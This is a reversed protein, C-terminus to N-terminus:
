CDDVCFNISRSPGDYSRIELKNKGYPASMPSDYICQKEGGLDWNGLDFEQKTDFSYVTVRAQTNFNSWFCLDVRSGYDICKNRCIQGKYIAGFVEPVPTPIPQRARATATAGAIATATRRVIATATQRIVATTTTRAAATSTQRISITATARAVVTATQLDIATATTRATATSTQQANATATARANTTETQQVAATVTQVVATNIQHASATAAAGAIARETVKAIAAATEVVATGTQQAFGTAAAQIVATATQQAAATATTWAIATGTQQAVFLATGELGAMATATQEVSMTATSQAQANATSTQQAYAMATTEAIVMGTQQASITAMAQAQVMATGTQQAVATATKEARSTVMRDATYWLGIVTLALVVLLILWLKGRGTQKRALLRGFEAATPRQSVDRETAQSLANALHRPLRNLKPFLFPHTRPDDDTVLHYLTAALAYVDTRPEVRGHYQEPPAYGATGFVSTQQMGVQGTTQMARQSKATGFDVLWIDGTRDLILNAPKIDLHVVNKQALYELVKCVQIGWREVEEAGYPQGKIEKRDEDEHTLGQELNKGEIYDMVIYNRGGETFFNFIQPIPIGPRNLTVLTSAETEFRQQAKAEEQQDTPDFYDLMEKIVVQRQAKAITERALYVAGMGGRGLLRIITYQGHLVQGNQLRTVLAAGCDNCFSAGLRNSKGCRSCITASM